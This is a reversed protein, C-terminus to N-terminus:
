LIFHIFDFIKKRFIVSILHCALEMRLSSIGGVIHCGTGFYYMKLVFDVLGLSTLKM